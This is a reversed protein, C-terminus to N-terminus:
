PHEWVMIIDYDAAEVSKGAKAPRSGRDGAKGGVIAKIRAVQTRAIDAAPVEHERHKSGDQGM